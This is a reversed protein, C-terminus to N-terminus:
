MTEGDSDPMEKPSFLYAALVLASVCFIVVATLWWALTNQQAAVTIFLLNLVIYAFTVLYKM